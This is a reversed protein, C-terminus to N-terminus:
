PEPKLVAVGYHALLALDDGGLRGGGGGSGGSAPSALLIATRLRGFPPKPAKIAKSPERRGLSRVLRVLRRSWRAVASGEAARRRIEAAVSAMGQGDGAVLTPRCWGAIGGLAWADPELYLAVRAALAWDLVIRGDLTAPDLCAVVVPRGARGPRGGGATRAGANAHDGPPWAGSMVGHEALRAGLATVKRAIEAAELTRWGAKGPLEEGTATESGRAPVPRVPGALRTPRLLAGGSLDALGPLPAEVEGRDRRGSLETTAPPLHAFRGAAGPETGDEGPLLLRAAGGPPAVREGAPVSGTERALPLATWGGARIALDAAVADPDARWRFAVVADAPLELAELARRGAAVQEAVTALSRWRMDLGELTFLLPQEPGIEEMVASLM